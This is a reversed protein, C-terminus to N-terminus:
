RSQSPGPGQHSKIPLNASQQSQGSEWAQPLLLHSPVTLPSLNIKGFLAFFYILGREPM